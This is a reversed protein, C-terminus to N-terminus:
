RVTTTPVRSPRMTSIWSSDNAQDQGPPERPAEAWSCALTSGSAGNRLDTSAVSSSSPSVTSMSSAAISRQCGIWNPDTSGSGRAGNSCPLRSSTSSPKSRSRSTARPPRDRDHVTRDAARARPTRSPPNPPRHPRPRRPGTRATSAGNPAKAATSRGPSTTPSGATRGLVSPRATASGARIRTANPASSTSRRSSPEHEDTALRKTASRGFVSRVADLPDRQVEAAHREEVRRDDGVVFLDNGHRGRSLATYAHERTM